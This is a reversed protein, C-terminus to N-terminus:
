GPLLGLRSRMSWRAVLLVSTVLLGVALGAWIGVGAWGARFGLWWATGFGAVWYGIAAILMPM